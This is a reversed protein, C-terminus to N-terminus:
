QPLVIDGEIIKKITEVYLIHEAKLVRTSISEATDESKVAVFSQNLIQGEDYHENVLHVTAGTEKDGNEIVEKHVNMGYMGKGGYKPLLSPHINLIRNRYKSITYSGIKTMYGALLVMDINHLDLIESIKKDIDAYKHCVSSDLSVIAINKQKAYTLAKSVSNNSIVVKVLANLIGKECADIIVRMNSGRGSVLVALKKM